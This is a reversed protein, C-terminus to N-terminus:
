NEGIALEGGSRQAYYNGGTLGLSGNFAAGRGAIPCYRRRGHAAALLLGMLLGAM